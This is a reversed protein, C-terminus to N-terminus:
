VVLTFTHRPQVFTPLFGPVSTPTRNLANTFTYSSNIELSRFPRAVLAVEIGRALGGSTNTYGFFRGFPDTAPNVIGTIDFQIVEQLKTYFYTAGIQVRDHALRQDIGADVSI